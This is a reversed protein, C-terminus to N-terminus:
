VFLTLVCLYWQEPMLVSIIPAAWMAHPAPDIYHTPQPWHTQQQTGHLGSILWCSYATDRQCSVSSAPCPRTLVVVVAVSKWNKNYQGRKISTFPKTHHYGCQNHWRIYLACDYAASADSFQASWVSLLNISVLHSALWSIKFTSSLYVVVGTNLSTLLYCTYLLECPQWVAVTVWM